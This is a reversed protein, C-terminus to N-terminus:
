SSALANRKDPRNLTIHAAPQDERVLVAGTALTSMAGVIRRKGDAPSRSSRASVPNGPSRIVQRRHGSRRVRDLGLAEDALELAPDPRNVADVQVDRRALDVAEETGVARSLRRGDQHERRQERGGRAARGHGPEIDARLAGLHAARMPAASCSAASSLKRLPRSCMSSCPPRCPNLRASRAARPSRVARARRGSRHRRGCPRRSSPRCSAGDRDPGRM